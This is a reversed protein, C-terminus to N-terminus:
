QVVVRRGSLIVWLVFLVLVWVLVQGAEEGVYRHLVTRVYDLWVSM